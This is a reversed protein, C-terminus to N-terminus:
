YVFVYNNNNEAGYSPPTHFTLTSRGSFYGNLDGEIPKM